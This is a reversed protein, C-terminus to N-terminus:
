VGQLHESVLEKLGDKLYRKVLAPAEVRLLARLCLCRGLDQGAEACVWVGAVRISRVIIVVKYGVTNVIKKAIAHAIKRAIVADKSMALTALRELENQVGTKADDIQQAITALTGCSKAADSVTFLMWSNHDVARLARRAVRRRWFFGNVRKGVKVASRYEPDGQKSRGSRSTSKSRKEAQRPKREPPGKRFLLALLKHRWCTDGPEKVRNRCKRGSWTRTSGCRNVM